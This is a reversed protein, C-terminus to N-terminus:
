APVRNWMAEDGVAGTGLNKLNNQWPIFRLDSVTVGPMRHAAELLDANFSVFHLCLKRPATTISHLSRLVALSGTFVRMHAAAEVASVQEEVFKCSGEPLNEKMWAEVDAGAKVVLLIYSPNM